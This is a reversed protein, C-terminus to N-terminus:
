FINKINLRSQSKLHGKCKIKNEESNTLDEVVLQETSHRLLLLNLPNDGFQHFSSVALTHVGILQQGTEATLLADGLEYQRQLLHPVTRLFLFLCALTSWMHIWVCLSVCFIYKLSNIIDLDMQRKILWLGRLLGM